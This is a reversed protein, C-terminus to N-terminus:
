KFASSLDRRLLACDQLPVVALDEDAGPVGFLVQQGAAAPVACGPYPVEGLHNPLPNKKVLNM